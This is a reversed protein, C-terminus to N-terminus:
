FRVLVVGCLLLSVMVTSLSLWGRRAPLGLSIPLTQYPLWGLLRPLWPSSIPISMSIGWCVTCPLTPCSFGPPVLRCWPVVGHAGLGSLGFPPATRAFLVPTLVAQQFFSRMASHPSPWSPLAWGCRFSLVAQLVILRRLGLVFLQGPWQFCIQLAPSVALLSPLLVRCSLGSISCCIWPWLGARWRLCWGTRSLSHLLLSICWKAWHSPLLLGVALYM